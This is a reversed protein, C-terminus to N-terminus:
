RINIYFRKLYIARESARKWFKSQPFNKVVSDYSDIASKIDRVESKSELVLGQLYLGADLGSVAVEFFRKLLSLADAYRGEDYAEQALRLIDQSDNGDKQRLSSNADGEKIAASNEAAKTSPIKAEGQSEIRSDQIATQVREVPLNETEALPSEDANKDFGKKPAIEANRDSDQLVGGGGIPPADKEARSSARARNEREFRKPVALAYSPAVVHSSDLANENGIEIAIYDDINKGTLVDNKYFHLITNGPKKSRLTFVCEKDSVSKGQFSFHEAGDVEGLYIWGSGPYVIDVYQNRKLRMTRSPVVDEKKAVEVSEGVNESNEEGLDSEKVDRFDFREALDSPAPPKESIETQSASALSDGTVIEGDLPNLPSEEIRAGDEDQAPIEAEAVEAEDITQLNQSIEEEAKSDEDPIANEPPPIEGQAFRRELERIEEQPIKETSVEIEPTESAADQSDSIEVDGDQSAPNGNEAIEEAQANEKEIASDQSDSIEVEANPSAPNENESIEEAQANEKGSASDQSDSIEVDGDQSAPNGNEAIEENQANEKEIASDQSDSIEVEANPSAPNGNEAIEEDQANEKEIASDQSDSIEVETNQSFDESLLAGKAAEGSTACSFFLITIAFVLIPFIKM